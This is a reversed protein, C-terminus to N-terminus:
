NRSMLLVVRVVCGELLLDCVELGVELLEDVGGEFADGRGFLGEGEERFEGLDFVHLEVEFGFVVVDEDVVGTSVQFANALQVM